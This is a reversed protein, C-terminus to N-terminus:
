YCFGYWVRHNNFFDIKDAFENLEKIDNKLVDVRHTIMSYMMTLFSDKSNECSDFSKIPSCCDHVFIKDETVCIYIPLVNHRFFKGDVKFEEAIHGMLGPIFGLRELFLEFTGLESYIYLGNKLLGKNLDEIAGITGYRNKFVSMSGPANYLIALDSKKFIQMYNGCGISEKLSEIYKTDMANSVYLESGVLIIDYHRVMWEPLQPVPINREDFKYFYRLKIESDTKFNFEM